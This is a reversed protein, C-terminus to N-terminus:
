LVLSLFMIIILCIFSVALGSMIQGVFSPKLLLRGAIYLWLGFPLCVYFGLLAVFGPKNTTIVSLLDLLGFISGMLSIIVGGIIEFWGFVKMAVSITNSGSAVQSQNKLNM